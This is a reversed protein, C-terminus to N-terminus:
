HLARRPLELIRFRENEYVVPLRLPAKREVNVVAFDAGYRQGLEVVRDRSLREYAGKETGIDRMRRWWLDSYVQSFNQQGGDKWDGVIGRESHIRFGSEHPPTLFVSDRRTHDRAWLQARVWAGRREAPPHYRAFAVPLVVCGVVAVVVVAAGLYARGRLWRAGVWWALAGALVWRTLPNALQRAVFELEQSPFERWLKAPVPFGARWLLLLAVLVAAPVSVAAPRSLVVLALIAPFMVHQPVLFALACTAVAAARRWGGECWLTDILGAFYIWCLLLLWKSSRLPQMQMVQLSPFWEGFVLGIGMLALVGIAALAAPTHPRDPQRRRMSSWGLAGLAVLCAFEYHTKPNWSLPLVHHGSRLRVQEFYSDPLPGERAWLMWVVTPLALLGGLVAGKFWAAGSTGRADWAAVCACMLALFASSQAHLNFTLGLLALGVMPRRSFVLALAAIQAPAAAFTHTHYNWALREAAWEIPHAFMLACCLLARPRSGLVVHGLGYIAAFLGVETLWQLGFLMPELHDFARTLLGLLAYYATFYRSRTAVMADGPYLSPDAFAKLIPIQIAHNSVGFHYGVCLLHLTGLWLLTLALDLRPRWWAISGEPARLM